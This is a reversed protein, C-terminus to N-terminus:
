WKYVAKFYENLTKGSEERIKDAEDFAFVFGEKLFLAYDLIKEADEVLHTSIIISAERNYNELILEFISERAAPDVGAIPEDFLYLRAKRSLVLILQLKEKTGKSLHKIKKLPDIQLRYILNRAQQENFDEYFDKFFIVADNATWKDSLYNCDPLYSIIKKSEPGPPNGDILINGDYTMLLNALLKLLTTKGSGNPGLLGIIKGAPLNVTINTLAPFSSYRKSLNSLEIINKGM